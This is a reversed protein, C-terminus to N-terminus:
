LIVNILAQGSLIVGLSHLYRDCVFVVEATHCYVLRNKNKKVWCTCKFTMCSVIIM